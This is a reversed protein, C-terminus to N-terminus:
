ARASRPRSSERVILRGPLLRAGSSTGGAIRALLEQAAVRGIEELRLDVTTLPPRCSAAMPRWNDVGVLAVDDPVMVGLDRLGDAVGRGIQDSGCFVADTGGTGVGAATLSAGAGRGWEESWEGYRVAAAPLGLGAQELAARAGEERHRVALATAPGTVYAVRRRGGAVLHGIALRGAEVDDPLVARDQPQDSQAYAYVVPVPLSGISSRVDTKKATVIIGDVRQTLLTRVYKREREIDGRADCLLVSISDAGLADEVGQLMPISFRGISDSTLLGVTFTRGSTLSRAQPNPEFGLEAAAVQVRHRTEPSLQGTDNLAKSVTGRSVGARRAVDSVTPRAMPDSGGPQHSDQDLILHEKSRAPYSM